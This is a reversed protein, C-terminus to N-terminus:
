ENIKLGNTMIGNIDDTIKYLGSQKSIYYNTKFEGGKITHCKQIVLDGGDISFYLKYYYDYKTEFSLSDRGFVDKNYFERYNGSVLSFKKPENFVDKIQRHYDSYELVSFSCSDVKALINKPSIIIKFKSFKTFIEYEIRDKLLVTKECFETTDIHRIAKYDYYSNTSDYIPELTENEVIFKSCIKKNKTFYDKLIIYNKTSNCSIILLSVIIIFEITLHKKM